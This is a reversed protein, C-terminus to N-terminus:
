SSLFQFLSILIQLYGEKDRLTPPADQESKKELPIVANEAERVERKTKLTVRPNPEGKGRQGGHNKERRCDAFSDGASSRPFGSPRGLLIQM